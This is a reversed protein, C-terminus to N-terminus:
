KSLLLKLGIGFDSTVTPYSSSVKPTSATRDYYFRINLRSSCVYDASFKIIFSTIGNSLQSYEDEIKRIYADTNKYSLDLRLNLDNKINKQKNNNLHV